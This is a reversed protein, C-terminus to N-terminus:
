TLVLYANKDEHFLDLNSFTPNMGYTYDGERKAYLNWYQLSEYEDVDYRHARPAVQQLMPDQGIYKYGDPNPGLYVGDAVVHQPYLIPQNMRRYDQEFLKPKVNSHVLGGKKDKCYLTALIVVLVIVLLTIYKYM